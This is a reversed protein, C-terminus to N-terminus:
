IIGQENHFTFNSEIIKDIYECIVKKYSEIEKKTLVYFNSLEQIVHDAMTNATELCACRGMDIISETTFHIPTHDGGIRIYHKPPKFDKTDDEYIPDNIGEYVITLERM